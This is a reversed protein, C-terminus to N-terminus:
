GLADAVARWRDLKGAPSLAAHAPSTSPLRLLRPGRALGAMMPAVHRGWAEEAKGGNFCVLGVAPHAEFFAPFDNAVETAREISSDLSNEPRKCSQLVDWV